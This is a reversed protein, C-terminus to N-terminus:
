RNCGLALLGQPRGQPEEAGPGLRALAKLTESVVQVVQLNNPAELPTIQGATIEAEGVLHVEDGVAEVHYLYTSGPTATEDLYGWGLVLAVPYRADALLTAALPNDDMAAHFEAITSVEFKEQIWPWHEGLIAIAEGEDTVKTIGDALLQFTEGPLRRYVRFTAEGLCREPWRWRLLVADESTAWALATEECTPYNKAVLPLYVESHPTPTTISVTQGQRIPGAVANGMAWLLVLLAVAALVVITRSKM